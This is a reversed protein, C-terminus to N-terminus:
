FQNRGFNFNHKSQMNWINVTTRGLFIFLLMFVLNDFLVVYFDGLISLSDNHKFKKILVIM